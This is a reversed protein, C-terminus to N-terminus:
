LKEGELFSQSRNGLVTNFSCLGFFLLMSEISEYIHYVIEFNLHYLQFYM